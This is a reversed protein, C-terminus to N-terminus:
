AAGGKPFGSHEVGDLLRGAVKKGVKFVHADTDSKSESAEGLSFAGEFTVWGGTSSKEYCENLDAAQSGSVFEGWQKFLFPVKAKACQEQLYQPWRPHMPRANHGSEGGAIVWDLGPRIPAKESEELPEGIGWIGRGECVECKGDPELDGPHRECHPKLWRWIAVASLMPEISLFRVRAPVALLKPIDRDAEDQNVVTAGIRVNAPAQGDLWASIWGGLAVNKSPFDVLYQLALLLRPRWNSIRKTLLLWDLHPTTRVLELLDVVWEIPAANDLWDALSACFVSRRADDLEISGCVGCGILPTSAEGRWGCESCQMFRRANWALPQKWNHASTRQRQGHPGWAEVGKSRMIRVPTSVEAYCHDCGGGNPSNSVKTCGIWPNFTADCWEINTSEAM